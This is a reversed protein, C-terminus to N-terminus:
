AAASFILGYHEKSAMIDDWSVGCSRMVALALIDDQEVESIILADIAASILQQSSLDHKAAILRLATRQRDTTEITRHSM